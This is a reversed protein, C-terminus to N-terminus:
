ATAASTTATTGGANTLARYYAMMLPETIVGQEPTEKWPTGKQHTLQSLAIGSYSKFAKWVAAILRMEQTGVTGMQPELPILETVYGAGYKKLRNYLRPIVPGWRWARIEDKFLANGTIGLSYGQALFVLKQLQMNDLTKGEAKALELFQNAVTLASAPM